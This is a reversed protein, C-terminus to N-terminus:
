GELVAVNVLLYGFKITVCSHVHTDWPVIVDNGKAGSCETFTFHTTVSGSSLMATVWLNIVNVVIIVM